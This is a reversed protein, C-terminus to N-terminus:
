LVISFLIDQQRSLSPRFTDTKMLDVCKQANEPHQESFAKKPPSQFACDLESNRIGLFVDLM